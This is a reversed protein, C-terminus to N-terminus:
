KGCRNCDVEGGCACAEKQGREGEAHAQRAIDLAAALGEGGSRVVLVEYM